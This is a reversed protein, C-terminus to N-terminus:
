RQAGETPSTAAEFREILTNIRGKLSDISQGVDPNEELYSKIEDAHASAYRLEDKPNMGYRRYMEDRLSKNRETVEDLKQALKKRDNKNQTAADVREEWEQVSLQMLARTLQCYDAVTIESQQVPIAQTALVLLLSMAPLLRPRM